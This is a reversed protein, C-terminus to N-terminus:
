DPYNAQPSLAVFNTQKNTQKNTKVYVPFWKTSNLLLHSNFYKVKLRQQELMEALFFLHSM